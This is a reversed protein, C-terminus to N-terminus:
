RPAARARLRAGRPHQPDGRQDANRLIPKGAFRATNVRIDAALIVVDAEAIERETLANKAGVSGQTEVKIAHGMQEAAKKLAEAAMVTHAIGTPCSTVAVIHKMAPLAASNFRLTAFGTSLNRFGM